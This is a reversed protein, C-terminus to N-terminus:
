SINHFRESSSGKKLFCPLPPHGNPMYLRGGSGTLERQKRNRSLIHDALRKSWSVASMGEEGNCITERSGSVLIFGKKRLNNKIM